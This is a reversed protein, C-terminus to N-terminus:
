SLGDGFRAGGQLRQRCLLGCKVPEGRGHNLAQAGPVLHEGAAIAATAGIGQVHRFFENRAIPAVASREWGNAQVGVWRHQGANGVIESVLRYEGPLDFTEPHATIQQDTKGGGAVGGIAQARESGGLGASQDGDGQEALVAALGFTYRIKFDDDAMGIRCPDLFRVGQDQM